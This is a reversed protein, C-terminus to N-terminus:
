ASGAPGPSGTVALAASLLVIGSTSHPDVGTLAVVRAIRKDVTNPHVDLAAATRRRDRDAALYAGLTARLEPHPALPALAAAVDADGDRPQALHYDVLVDPLGYVGLPRGTRRVTRVVEEARRAAAPVADRCAAPAYGGVIPVQAVRSLVPGLACLADPEYEGPLLVLGGTARASLLALLPGQAFRGLEARIRRIRRRRVMADAPREPAGERGRSPEIDLCLVVYRDALAIGLEDALSGISRGEVLARALAQQAARGDARLEEYEALYGRVAGETLQELVALLREVLLGLGPLDAPEAYRRLVRTLHRAGGFYTRVVADLPVGEEARQAAQETFPACDVPFAPEGDAARALFDELALRTTRAIEVERVDDPLDGFPTTARFEGDVLERVLDPVRPLVRGALRRAAAHEVGDGDGDGCRRSGARDPTTM